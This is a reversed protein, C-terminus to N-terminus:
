YSFQSLFLIEHANNSEIGDSIWVYRPKRSQNGPRIRSESPCNQTNCTATDSNSGVCDAGGYQPEPNTCNRERTMQGGGCIVSCESWEGWTTYGGDIPCPQLLGM